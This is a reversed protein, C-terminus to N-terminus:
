GYRTPYQASINTAWSRIFDQPTPAAILRRQVEQWFIKQRPNIDCLVLADPRTHAALELNFFGAFGIQAYPQHPHQIRLNQIHAQTQQKVADFHVQEGYAFAHAPGTVKYAKGEPVGLAQDMGQAFTM